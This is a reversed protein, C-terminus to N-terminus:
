AASCTNKASSSASFPCHLRRRTTLDPQNVKAYSRLNARAEHQTDWGSILIPREDAQHRMCCANAAGAKLDSCFRLEQLRAGEVGLTNDRHWRCPEYPFEADKSFNLQGVNFGSNQSPQADAAVGLGETSALGLPLGGPGAELRPM